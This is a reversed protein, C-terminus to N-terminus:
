TSHVGEFLIRSFREESDRDKFRGHASEPCHTLEGVYVNNGDVFFDVRVFQFEQALVRAVDLIEPLRPPRGELEGRPFNYEIDIVNWGITYLNRKHITHRDSDVQILRPEGSYCFVKYDKTEMGSSLMPECIIRRRLFKYNKERATAYPSKKLSASLTEKDEPKMENQGEALFVISGSGHAPKLVCPKPLSEVSIDEVRDFTDLTPIVLHEGCRTAVFEKVLIKDSTLQRYVDTLWSSSKLFYFYDNALLTSRRPIRKHAYVFFIFIFLKDFRDTKPLLALTKKLFNKM